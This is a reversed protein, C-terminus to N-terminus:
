LNQEKNKDEDEIEKKALLQYDANFTKADNLDDLLQKKTNQIEEKIPEINPRTLKSCIWGLLVCLVGLGVLAIAWHLKYQEEFHSMKLFAININM